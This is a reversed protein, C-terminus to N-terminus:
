FAALPTFKTYNEESKASKSLTRNKHQRSCKPDTLAVRATIYVLLYTYGRVDPTHYQKRLLTECENVIKDEVQFLKGECLLLSTSVDSQETYKM